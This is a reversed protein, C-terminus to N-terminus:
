KLNDLSAALNAEMEELVALVKEALTGARGSSPAEAEPAGEEENHEEEDNAM